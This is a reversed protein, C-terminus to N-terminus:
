QLQKTIRECLCLLLPLIFDGKTKWVQKIVLACNKVSAEPWLHWFDSLAEATAQFCSPETNKVQWNAKTKQPKKKCKKLKM